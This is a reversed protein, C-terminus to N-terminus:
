EGIVIKKKVSSKKEQSFHELVDNLFFLESNAFNPHSNELEKTGNIHTLLSHYDNLIDVINNNPHKQMTAHLANMPNLGNLRHQLFTKEPTFNQNAVKPDVGDRILTPDFNPHYPASKPLSYHSREDISEQNSPASELNTQNYLIGQKYGQYYDMSLNALGEDMEKGSTADGYGQYYVDSDSAVKHITEMYDDSAWSSTVLNGEDESDNRNERDQASQNGFDNIMNLGMPDKAYEQSKRKKEKSDQMKNVMNKVLPVEAAVGAVGAVGLGTLIEPKHNQVFPSQLVHQASPIINNVFDAVGAEYINEDHWRSAMATSAPTNNQPMAMPSQDITSVPHTDDSIDNNMATEDPLADATVSWSSGKVLIGEPSDESDGTVIPGINEGMYLEDNATDNEATHINQEDLLESMRKPITM